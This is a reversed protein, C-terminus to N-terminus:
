RIGYVGAYISGWRLMLLWGARGGHVPFITESFATGPQPQLCPPPLSSRHSLLQLHHMTSSPVTEKHQATSSGEPTSLLLANGQPLCPLQPPPGALLHQFSTRCHPCRFSPSCIDVGPYICSTEVTNGFDKGSFGQEADALALSFM